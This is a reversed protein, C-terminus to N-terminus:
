RLSVFIFGLIFLIIACCGCGMVNNGLTNLAAGTKDLNNAIRKAKAAKQASKSISGDSNEGPYTIKCGCNPCVREGKLSYKCKLCYPRKGDSYLQQGIISWEKFESM